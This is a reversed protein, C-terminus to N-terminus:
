ERLTGIRMSALTREQNPMGGHKGTFAATGDTGCLAIIKAAGGPHRSIFSTVDYVNENVVTYCDQETAHTAVDDMTFLADAASSSEDQVVPVPTDTDAAPQQPQCGALLLVAASLLLSPIAKHM